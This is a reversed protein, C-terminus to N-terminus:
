LGVVRQRARCKEATIIAAIKEVTQDLQGDRNVVVYDFEPIRAMEERLASMRRQFAEADETGRGRLRRLLEEESSALLFILIADPVLARVTAAGQVDVRMVVDRGSALARRVQEKPIGKYEGYVVAHELLEGQQIWGLFQAKSVFFYDVGHVESQRAPRTTATVVFYFPYELEKMRKVVADKGVGSPGSVVILLPNPRGLYAGLDVSPPVDHYVQEQDSVSVRASRNQVYTAGARAPVVPESAVTWLGQLFALPMTYHLCSGM